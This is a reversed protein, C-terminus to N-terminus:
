ELALLELDYVLPGAPYGRRRPKDGYALASPIWLRVKDGVVLRPLVERWGPIVEGLGYVAPRGSFVTSEFLVGKTTWGSFHLKVRQPAAPHQTGTGKKLILFSVGSETKQAKAPPGELDAPMPPAKILEILELDVTVDLQPPEEDPEEGPFTLAAPVWVRRQEGVVMSRLAEAVGKMATRLCQFSPEAGARSNSLLTGDRKWVVFHIRACDNDTPHDAGKGPRLVKMALGSPTPRADAPPAAVDPPAPPNGAAGSVLISLILPLTV